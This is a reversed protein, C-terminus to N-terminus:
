IANLFERYFDRNLERSEELYDPDAASGYYDDWDALDDILTPPYRFYNFKISWATSIVKRGLLLGWYAGHYSNTVITEGSALFKIVSKINADSNTKFPASEPYLHPPTKADHLYFVVPHRIKYDKDFSPHMCSVCPVYAAEFGAVWDRVSFLDFKTLYSPFLFPNGKKSVASGYNHGIGWAVSLKPQQDLLAQIYKDFTNHILGGGGVIITQNHVDISEKSLHKTVVDPIDFYRSPNCYYDGVNDPDVRHFEYIM